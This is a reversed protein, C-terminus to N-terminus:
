PLRDFLDTNTTYIFHHLCQCDRSWRRLCGFLLTSAPVVPVWPAFPQGTLTVLFLGPLPPTYLHGSRGLSHGSYIQNIVKTRCLLSICYAM